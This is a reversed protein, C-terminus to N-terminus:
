QAITHSKGESLRALSQFPKSAYKLPDVRELFFTLVRFNHVSSVELPFGSLPTNNATVRRGDTTFAPRFSGVTALVLQIAGEACTDPSTFIPSL